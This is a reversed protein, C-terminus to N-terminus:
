LFDIKTFLYIVSFITKICIIVKTHADNKRSWWYGGLTEVLPFNSDKWIPPFTQDCSIQNYFFVKIKTQWYSNNTYFGIWVTYVCDM